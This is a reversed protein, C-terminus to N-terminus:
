VVLNIKYDECITYTFDEWFGDNKIWEKFNPETHYVTDAIKYYDECSLGDRLLDNEKLFDAFQNGNNGGQYTLETAMIIFLQLTTYKM